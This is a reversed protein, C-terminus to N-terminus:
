DRQLHQHRRNSGRGHRQVGVVSLARLRALDLPPSVSVRRPLEDYEQQNNEHRNRQPRQGYGEVAAGGALIPRLSMVFSTFGFPDALGHVSTFRRGHEGDQQQARQYVAKKRFPRRPERRPTDSFGDHGDGVDNRALIGRHDARNHRKESNCHSERHDGREAPGRRRGREFNVVRGCCRVPDEARLRRRFILPKAVCRRRRPRRSRLREVLGGVAHTWLWHPERSEEVIEVVVIDAAAAQLM